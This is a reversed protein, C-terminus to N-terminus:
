KLLKDNDFGPASRSPPTSPSFQHTSTPLAYLALVVIMGALLLYQLRVGRWGLALRAGLYALYLLWVAFSSINHPDAFWHGSLHHRFLYAIGLALGITLLPMGYAVSHYAMSDLTALAPLRRLPAAIVREKLLRNQLLYLTACGFALAFLAFSSLISLVHLSVIQSRLLSTQAVPGRSHLMGYFLVVCAVPLAVAGVLALRSRLDVLAFALAVVWAFISLTGFESAFPSRHTTMCWAGVAGFHILLSIWLVPRAVSELLSPHVSSSPASPVRLFLAAGYGVSALLYGVLALAALVAPMM